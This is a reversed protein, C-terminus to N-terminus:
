VIDSAHSVVSDLRKLHAFIQFLDGLQWASMFMIKAKNLNCPFLTTM